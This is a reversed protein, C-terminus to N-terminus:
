ATPCPAIRAVTLPPAIQDTWLVAIPSETVPILQGVLESHTATVPLACNVVVFAPAMHVKVFKPAMGKKSATAHLLELEHTVVPKPPAIRAVASPAALQDM